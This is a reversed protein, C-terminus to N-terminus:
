FLIWHFIPLCFFIFCNSFKGAWTAHQPVLIFDRQITNPKFEKPSDPQFTKTVETNVVHPQVVTVPIEFVVGKEM